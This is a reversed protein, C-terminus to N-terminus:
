SRVKEGVIGSEKNYPIGVETFEKPRCGPSKSEHDRVLAPVAVTNLWTVVDLTTDREPVEVFQKKLKCASCSYFCRITSM